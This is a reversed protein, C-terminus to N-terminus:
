PKSRPKSVTVQVNRPWYIAGLGMQKAEDIIIPCKIFEPFIYTSNRRRDPTELAAACIQGGDGGMSYSVFKSKSGLEAAQTKDLQQIPEVGSDALLRMMTGTCARHTTTPRLEICWKCIAKKGEIRQFLIAKPGNRYTILFRCDSRGVPYFGVSHRNFPMSFIHLDYPVRRDEIVKSEFDIRAQSLRAIRRYAPGSHIHHVQPMGILFM